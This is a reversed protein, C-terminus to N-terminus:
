GAMDGDRPRNLWHLSSPAVVASTSANPKSTPAPPTPTAAMWSGSREHERQAQQYRKEADACGGSLGFGPCLGRGLVDLLAVLEDGVLLVQQVGVAAQELYIDVRDWSLARVGVGYGGSDRRFGGGLLVERHAVLEDGFM